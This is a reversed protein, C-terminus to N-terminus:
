TTSPLCLDLRLLVSEDYSDIWAVRDLEGYGIHLKGDQLFLSVAFEIGRSKFFFEKSVKCDRLDKGLFLFAHKYYSNGRIVTRRHILGLVGDKYPIMNTGGSYYFPLEAMLIRKEGLSCKENNLNLRYATLPSLSYIVHIDNVSGPREFPMWNKERLKGEPSPIPTLQWLSGSEPDLRAIFVTSKPSPIASALTGIVYYNECHKFVRLDELGCEALGERRFETDKIKNIVSFDNETSIKVYYNVSDWQDGSLFRFYNARNEKEYNVTRVIGRIEGQYIFFSPNCCNYPLHLDIRASSLAWRSLIPSSWIGLLELCTSLKEKLYKLLRM